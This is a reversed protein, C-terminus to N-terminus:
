VSSLQLIVHQDSAVMKKWFPIYQNLIVPILLVAAIPRTKRYSYWVHESHCGVVKFVTVAPGAGGGGGLLSFSICGLFGFLM